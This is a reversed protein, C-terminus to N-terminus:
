GRVETGELATLLMGRLRYHDALGYAFIELKGSEALSLVLLAETRDDKDTEREIEKAMMALRPAIPEPSFIRYLTKLKM